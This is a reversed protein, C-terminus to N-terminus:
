VINSYLLVKNRGAHKACYLAQDARELLEAGLSKHDTQAIGSSLTVTYTQGNAVFSLESFRQRIEEVIRQAQLATCDPLVAAFEEGGYRGLSDVRRLRQRLLNALARIVNDGAAHGYRDNIQKFHDIDLMVISAHSGTRTSREVEVGIQEKIDAHKLLGTLSDRSLANSLLRARQARSFVTTVLASDSIPKTVFDDGARLLAAMQKALDTEGSLYVIPIRLWEDQFRIIQALEPGSCGPMHVDLVVVEPNFRYMAELGTIPDNCVEVLMNSQGLVLSYHRALERDDDVILIRYPEGQQRAFCRQLTNELAPLNIPKPLFGIAGARVARLQTAFDAKSSIVLLALDFRELLSRSYELGDPQTIGLDVDTILADFSRQGIDSELADATAYWHADYGFNRLTLEMSRGMEPDDELIAIRQESDRSAPEPSPTLPQIHQQLPQQTPQPQAAQQLKLLANTFAPLASLDITGASLWAAAQLELERAQQGLAAFGFTGAAGALKHLQQRLLQLHAQQQEGPASDQVRTASAAIEPLDNELRAAFMQALMALQQQLSDTEAM